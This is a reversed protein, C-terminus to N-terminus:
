SNYVVVKTNTPVNDWIWKANDLALRICGHSYNMGLNPDVPSLNYPNTRSYKDFLISHFFNGASIHTCYAASTYEFDGWGYEASRKTLHGSTHWEGSPTRSGGHTCRWEGKVRIWNGKKGKYICVTYTSKDVLILYNTDSSYGQAKIDMKSMEARGTEDIKVGDITTNVAVRGTEYTYYSGGEFTKWGKTKVLRGENDFFYIRGSPFKHPGIVMKGGDNANLYFKSSGLTLWGTKARGSKTLYYWNGDNQKWGVKGATGNSNYYGWINNTTRVWGTKMVGSKNFFYSKGGITKIGTLVKGTPAKPYRSDAFYYKQGKITKWGTLMVGAPVKSATYRSDAFYYKVGDITKFGTMRAGRCSKNYAAYHEDMFYYKKGSITAWGTIQEGTPHGSIRDDAFYFVYGSITKFGTLRAGAPLATYKNNAFFYMVGDVRKWGTYKKGNSGFYFTYTKGNKAKATIWKNKAPVGNVYYTTYNDQWGSKEVAKEEVVDGTVKADEPNIVEETVTEEAADASDKSVTEAEEEAAEETVEETAEAPAEESTKEVAAEEAAEETIEAPAEEAAEEVAEETTEAPAEETTEVAAEETTEEETEEVAEEKEETDEVPAEAQAETVVQTGAAEGEAASVGTVSFSAFTLSLALLMALRRKM